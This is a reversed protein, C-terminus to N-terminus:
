ANATLNLGRYLALHAEWAVNVQQNSNLDGKGLNHLYRTELAIHVEFLLQMGSQM